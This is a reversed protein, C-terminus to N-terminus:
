VSLKKSSIQRKKKRRSNTWLDLGINGRQRDVEGEKLEQRGVEINM